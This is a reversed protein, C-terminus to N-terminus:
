NFRDSPAPGDSGELLEQVHRLVTALRESPDLQELLQQRDDPEEVLMSAVHDAFTGPGHVDRLANELQSGVRSSPPVLRRLCKRIENELTDVVVRSTPEDDDLVEVRASRYPESPLEESLRVRGLGLLVLNSRGDALEVYRVIRGVGFVSYLPPRGHYDSEYGPKLRPVGLLRDGEMAVKVLRRYRPEFVHLPLQTAPFLVVNPLPFLGIRSLDHERLSEPHNVVRYRVGRQPLPSGDPRKSPHFIM